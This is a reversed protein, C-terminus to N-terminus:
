ATNRSHSWLCMYVHHGNGSKCLNAHHTGAQMQTASSHMYGIYLKVSLQKPSHGKKVYTWIAKINQIIWQHKAHPVTYRHFRVIRVTTEKPSGAITEPLISPHLDVIIPWVLHAPPSSNAARDLTCLTLSPRFQSYAVIWTWHLQVIRQGDRLSKLNQTCKNCSIITMGDYFLSAM